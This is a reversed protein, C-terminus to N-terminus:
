QVYLFSLQAQNQSQGYPDAVAAHAANAFM